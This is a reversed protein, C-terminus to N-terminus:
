PRQHKGLRLFVEDPILPGDERVVNERSAFVREYVIKDEWFTGTARCVESSAFALEHLRIRVARAPRGELPDRDFWQSRRGGDWLGLLLRRTWIAPRSQVSLFTNHMFFSGQQAEYFLQQEFRPFVPAFFLPPNGAGPKYRYTLTQFTRGAPDEAAQFEIDWRRWAIGKFVGMPNAIRFNSAAKLPALLLTKFPSDAEWARVDDRYAVYNLFNLYRNGIPVFLLGILVVQVGMQFILTAAGLRRFWGPRVSASSNVAAARAEPASFRTALRVGLPTGILFPITAVVALLNFWAFNGVLQIVVSVSVLVLVAWARLRSSLVAVPVIVEVGLTLATAIKQTWEPLQALYWAMPTPMPQNPFFYRMFELSTWATNNFLLKDMGMSFWLRFSSLMIAALALRERDWDDRFASLFISVFGLELLLTDWPYAFFDGGFNVISLWAVFTTALGLTTLRNVVVLLSGLVGLGLIM